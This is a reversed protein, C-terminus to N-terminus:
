DTSSSSEGSSSETGGVTGTSGSGSGPSTVSGSEETADESGGVEPTEPATPETPETPSTPEFPDTPETPEPTPDTTPESTESGDSSESNDTGTGTTGAQEGDSAGQDEDTGTSSRGARDVGDGDDTSSSSASRDSGVTRSISTGSGDQGQVADALPKGILLEVALVVGMVAVFVVAASAALVRVKGHRRIMRLWRNRPLAESDDVGDAATGPDGAAEGPSNEGASAEVSTGGRTTELAATTGGDLAATTGGDSGAQASRPRKIQGVVPKLQAHTKEISRTYLFNAVVTLVSAVGAGIITGAIGFFSLAVTTSVAALASAVIQTISLRTPEPEQAPAGDRQETPPPSTATM